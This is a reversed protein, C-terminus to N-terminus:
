YKSHASAYIRKEFDLIKNKNKKKNYKKIINLVGFLSDSKLTHDLNAFDKIFLKADSRVKSQTLKKNIIFKINKRLLRFDKVDYVHNYGLFNKDVHSLTTLYIVPVGSVISELISSCFHSVVLDAAKVVESFAVDSSLQFYIDKIKFSEIYKKINLYDIGHHVRFIIQLNSIEEKIKMIENYNKFESNKYQYSALWGSMDSIVCVPRNPDLGLRVKETKKDSLSYFFKKMRIDRLLLIKKKPVKLAKCIINRSISGTTILYDSIYTHRIFDLEGGLGHMTGITIVNNKIAPLVNSAEDAHLDFQSIVIKPSFNKIIQEAILIKNITSNVGSLIEKKIPPIAAEVFSGNKDIFLKSKILYNTIKHFIDNVIKKININNKNLFYDCKIKLIAKYFSSIVNINNNYLDLYNRLSIKKDVFNIYIEYGKSNLLFIDEKIQDFYYDNCSICNFLIKNNGLKKKKLFLRIFTFLFYHFVSYFLFNYIERLLRYFFKIRLKIPFYLHSRKHIQDILIGANSAAINFALHDSGNNTIPKLRNEYFDYPSNNSSVIIKKPNFYKLIENAYNWSTVVDMFSLSLLSYHMKLIPYKEFFDSNFCKNYSNIKIKSNILIDYAYKRSIRKISLLNLNWAIKECSFYKVNLNRAALRGEFTPAIVIFNKNSENKKIIKKLSYEDEKRLLICIIKM